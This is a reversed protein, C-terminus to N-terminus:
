EDSPALGAGRVMELHPCSAAIEALAAFRWPVYHWGREQDHLQYRAEFGKVEVGDITGSITRRVQVGRQRFRAFPLGASALGFPDGEDYRLGMQRIVFPLQRDRLKRGQTGL